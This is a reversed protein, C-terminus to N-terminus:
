PEFEVFFVFCFLFFLVFVFVFVFFVLFCLMEARVVCLLSPLSFCRLSLPSCGEPHEFGLKLAKERELAGFHVSV